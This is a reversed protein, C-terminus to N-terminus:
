VVISGCDNWDGIGVKAGTFDDDELRQGAHHAQLRENGAYNWIGYNEFRINICWDLFEIELQEQCSIM